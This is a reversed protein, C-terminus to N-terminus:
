KLLNIAQKINKTNGASDIVVGAMYYMGPLLDFGSQDKGNWEEELNTIRFIPKGTKDMIVLELKEIDEGTIKIVDNIGDGNPTIVNPIVDVVAEKKESKPQPAPTPAVPNKTEEKKEEKKMEKGPAASDQTETNSPSSSNQKNETNNTSSEINESENNEITIPEDIIEETAEEIEEVSSLEDKVVINTEKNELKEQTTAEVEIPAAKEVPEIENNEQPVVAIEEKQNEESNNNTIYYGATAISGVAIVAAAIKVAISKTVASGVTSSVPDAQTAVGGSGIANQVNTWVSPDVNAEFGDFAQKFVEDINELGDKM